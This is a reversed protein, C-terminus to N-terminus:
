AGRGEQSAKGEGPLPWAKEDERESCVEEVKKNLTLVLKAWQLLHRENLTKIYSELNEEQPIFAEIEEPKCLCLPKGVRYAIASLQWGELRALRNCLREWRKRELEVSDFCIRLKSLGVTRLFWLFAFNCAGLSSFVDYFLSFGLDIERRDEPSLIETLRDRV